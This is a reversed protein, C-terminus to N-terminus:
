STPQRAVTKKMWAPQTSQATCPPEWRVIQIGRRSVGNGPLNVRWDAVVRRPRSGSCDDATAHWEQVIGDSSAPVRVLCACNNFIPLSLSLVVQSSVLAETANVGLAVAIFSPITIIARRLWIPIQFGIFGQMIMQGAFTGVVSSSVGSAILPLIFIVAAAVGLVPTLTHFAAEIEAVHSHGSHFAGSAM